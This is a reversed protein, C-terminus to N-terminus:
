VDNENPNVGNGQPSLHPQPGCVHGLELTQKWQNVDNEKCNVDNEKYDVDNGQRNM